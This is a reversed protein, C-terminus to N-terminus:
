KKSIAKILQYHFMFQILPWRSLSSVLMLQERIRDNGPDEEPFIKIHEKREGYFTLNPKIEGGFWRRWYNSSLM